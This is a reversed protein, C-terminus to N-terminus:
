QGASISSASGMARSFLPMLMWDAPLTAMGPLGRGVGLRDVGHFGEAAVKGLM